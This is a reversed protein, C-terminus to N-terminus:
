FTYRNMLESVTERRAGEPNTGCWLNMYDPNQEKKSKGRMPQTLINQIPYPCIADKYQEVYQIYKNTIGNAYRGSFTKTLTIDESQAKLINQKHIEPVTSENTTLFATGLQVATAGKNIFTRALKPTTIGGAVILPMNVVQYTQNFLEETTLRDEPLVQDFSGRHGGAESGQLVIADVSVSELAKAELLTTATGVVVIKHEHLQNVLSESPLGFTFCALSIDKNIIVEIMDEFQNDIQVDNVPEYGLKESIPKLIENMRDVDHKDIEPYEPIFLNVGFPKNTMTRIQDIHESLSEPTMYGAGIQGFGGENCVTSVMEPSTVGGAMGAQFIPKTMQLETLLDKSNM